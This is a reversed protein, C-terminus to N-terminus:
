KEIFKSIPKWFSPVTLNSLSLHGGTKFLTFKSDLSKSFEESPRSYVVDDDKAHIIYLKEKDLNKIEAIPNFFKGTKLKNWDKSTFRYANGFAKKTFEGLWEIPETKSKVRWDIVPSLAVIKKVRKDKSSLIAATGGFSSGIIYIEPNKIKYTKDSWLDKFGLSLSDIVDIVDLHPSKKLFSGDSEWTGRYRPLFVFYGKSALFFMVEKNSPYTPMGSLLIIVKNSKKEPPIFETIIEKKIRARLAYM